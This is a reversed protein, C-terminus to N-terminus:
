YIDTLMQSPSPSHTASGIESVDDAMSAFTPGLLSVYAGSFFGYLMCVVALSAVDRIGLLAFVITGALASAPILVTIPGVKDALYNPVTRGFVSAGNLMALTYFAVTESIGQTEAYLQVYFFVLYLGLGIICVSTVGFLYPPDRLLKIPSPPKMMRQHPHYNTSCLLNALLLAGLMFFGLARVGWGFGREQFVNNLLIPFVIGGVSSGTAAIGMAISRRKLFHHGVVAVSPLYLLGLGVGQGVAQALFVQWYADPEAASLGFICGVLLISGGVMMHQFYGADFWRGAVLGALFLLCTQLSGIWSIASASYSPLLTEIYYAQYVGYTNVYGFTCMSIIWCGGVTAWARLGGDPIVHADRAPETTVAAEDGKHDTVNTLSSAATTKFDRPSGLEVDLMKEM